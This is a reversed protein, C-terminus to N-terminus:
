MAMTQATTFKNKAELVLKSNAFFPSQVIGAEECTESVLSEISREKPKPLQELFYNNFILLKLPMPKHNVTKDANRFFERLERVISGFPVSKPTTGLHGRVWKSLQSVQNPQAFRM